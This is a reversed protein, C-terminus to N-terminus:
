DACIGDLGWWGHHTVRQQTRHKLPPVAVILQSPRGSASKIQVLCM